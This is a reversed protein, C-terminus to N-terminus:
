IGYRELEERISDIFMNSKRLGEVVNDPLPPGLWEVSGHVAILCIGQVEIETPEGDDSFNPHDPDSCKPAPRGRNWTGKVRITIGFPADLDIIFRQWRM